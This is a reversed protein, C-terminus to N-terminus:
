HYDISPSISQIFLTEVLRGAIPLSLRVKPFNLIVTKCLKSVRTGQPVRLTRADYHKNDTMGGQKFGFIPNLCPPIKVM